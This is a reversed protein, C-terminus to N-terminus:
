SGLKICALIAGLEGDTLRNALTKELDDFDLVGWGNEGMKKTMEESPM